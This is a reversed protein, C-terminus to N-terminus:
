LLHAMTIPPIDELPPLQSIALGIVIGKYLISSAQM